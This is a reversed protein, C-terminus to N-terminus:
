LLYGVITIYHFISGALVFLHWVGHYVPRKRGMVYFIIGVTYFLGGILLLIFGSMVLKALLPKLAVVILWGMGTYIVLPIKRSESERYVIDLIIGLVALGWSIGFITFGWGGRLLVLSFPTYTGAILLYISNHDLTRLIKRLEGRNSSHYLTSFLYLLFLTAGYISFSVIKWPDGKLSVLVVLIIVAIFSIIAGMLHTVSNFREDKCM